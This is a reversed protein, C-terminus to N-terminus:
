QLVGFMDYCDRCVESSSPQVIPLDCCACRKWTLHYKQVVSLVVYLGKESSLRKQKQANFYVIDDYGEHTMYVDVFPAQLMVKHSM